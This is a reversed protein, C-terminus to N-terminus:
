MCLLILKLGGLEILLVFVLQSVNQADIATGPHQGSWNCQRVFFGCYLVLPCWNQLVNVM